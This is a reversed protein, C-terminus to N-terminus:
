QAKDEGSISNEKMLFIEYIYGAGAICLLVRIITVAFDAVTFSGFVYHITISLLIIAALCVLFIRTDTM